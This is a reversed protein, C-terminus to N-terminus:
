HTVNKIKYDNALYFKSCPRDDVYSFYHDLIVNHEQNYEDIITSEYEKAAEHSRCKRGQKVTPDSFTGYPCCLRICPRNNCLCGRLYPEVIIRSSGNEIIYNIKAYQNKSFTVNEYFISEDNQKVGATINISDLFQCPLERSLLFADSCNLSLLGIISIMWVGMANPILYKQMISWIISFFFIAFSFFNFYM